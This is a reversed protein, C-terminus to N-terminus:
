DSPHALGHQQQGLARRLSLILHPNKDSFDKLPPGAWKESWFPLLAPNNRGKWNM